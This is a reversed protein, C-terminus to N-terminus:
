YPLASSVIQVLKFYTEILNAWIFKYFHMVQGLFNPFSLYSHFNVQKSVLIRGLFIFVGILVLYNKLNM